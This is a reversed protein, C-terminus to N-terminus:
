GLADALPGLALAPLYELGVMILAVSVILVIFTPRHTRLTGATIVGQRQAAFTGALAMVVIIPVFRGAVMAIALAVNYWTTNGTFGAFASGNNAASSTFAYLVESLGHPGTNLMSAVQGPLAMAIACGVLVTVPIVLIYLSILKMHRAVLRKQLFEPTTGVMLGGLFVALLAMMVLGYLGSGAGGPAVEGLMMNMLLVGGALGAFSDYSANAAGDGSATAAQGFVASGPVGFRTETGETAAGVAGIVTGHGVTQAWIIAVTGIVFLIAVAAFLAWGQKKDGVMVGFTRIFAAPILLMAVIEVVNSLPTPNEFPHASNVNFAGGGDGSMLKISEWSAVPGGLITQSGGAVTSVDQPGNFNAVVGLTLLIIAVVVSLPILIRVVTRVLDVWFNGLEGTQGQALGRILAIAVCMGVACSAFAQVGLGAALGLHGLTSEGPYNQWSTNTTFSIATNFALAPTMGKHGWPEPLHAQELLIAYLLLVSVLSFALLSSLYSTWRQENGPQVGVVRYIAKEVRWSPVATYARALYNGLPVHLIVM